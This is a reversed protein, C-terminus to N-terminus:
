DNQEGLSWITNWQPSSRISELERAAKELQEESKVSVTLETGGTEFNNPQIMRWSTGTTIDRAAKEFSVQLSSLHPYRTEKAVTTLRAIADKPSLGQGLTSTIGSDAMVQAITKEQMKGSEFLWTLMNVANSRSWSFSDFLPEIADRDAKDMKLLVDGAAMPIRGAQMHHQWNEPLDLWRMLLKTNKSKSKIGLMPLITERLYANDALSAFYKLAALRMGDDLEKHTNDALYLLGKDLPSAKTVVRVLVPKSLRKMIELRAHGSVLELGADSEQALVPTTQGFQGISIELSENINESWFLHKGGTKVADASASIIENSLQM